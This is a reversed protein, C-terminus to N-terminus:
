IGYLIVGGLFALVLTLAFSILYGAVYLPKRSSNLVEPNRWRAVVTVTSVVLLVMALIFKVNANPADGLYNVQNDYMGSVGAAISGLVTLVLNGFAMKEFVADKKWLALLIFLAAAGSLAIPFHVLMPHLPHLETIATIIRNILDM